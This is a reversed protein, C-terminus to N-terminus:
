LLEVGAKEAKKLLREFLELSVTQNPKALPGYQVIVGFQKILRKIENKLRDRTEPPIDTGLYLSEDETKLLQLYHLVAMSLIKGVKVMKKPVSEQDIAEYFTYRNALAVVFGKGTLVSDVRSEKHFNYVESLMENRLNNNEFASAYEIILSEFYEARNRPAESAKIMFGSHIKCYICKACSDLINRIIGDEEM